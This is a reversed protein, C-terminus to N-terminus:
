DSSSFLLRFFNPFEIVYDEGGHYKQALPRMFYEKIAYSLLAMDSPVSYVIFIHWFYGHLVSAPQMTILHIICGAVFENFGVLLCGALLVSWLPESLTHSIPKGKDYTLRHTTTLSSGTYHVSEFQKTASYTQFNRWNNKLRMISMQKQAGAPKRVVVLM